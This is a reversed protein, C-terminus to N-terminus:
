SLPPSFITEPITDNVPFTKDSLLLSPKPKFVPKQNIMRTLLYYNTIKLLSKKFKYFYLDFGIERVRQKAKFNNITFVTELPWRVFKLIIKDLERRCIQLM